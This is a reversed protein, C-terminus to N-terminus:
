VSPDNEIAKGIYKLLFQLHRTIFQFSCKVPLLIYILKFLDEDQGGSIESQATELEKPPSQTMM